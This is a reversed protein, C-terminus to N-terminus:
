RAGGAPGFACDFLVDKGMDFHVCDLTVADSLQDIAPLSFAPRGSGLICPAVAVHLCDLAGAALFRSVTVGGGEVFVRGLGRGRLAALVAAVPLLGGPDRAVGVVEARGHHPSSGAGVREAGCVLLTPASGDQFVAQAPDLRRGPDLIVRTPSQGAVRRTTLLPDDKAVTHAGVVVADVLARMRHAHDVNEPGSIFQSQGSRTAIRGDLSEALHGVVLRGCGPGTCLPMYLDFLRGLEAAAGTGVAGTGVAGTGVAGAHEGTAAAPWSWGRPADPRVVVWSREPAIEVLEGGPGQEDAGALALGVPGAGGVPRGARAREALRRLLVWALDRDLASELESARM